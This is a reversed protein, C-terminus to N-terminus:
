APLGRIGGIRRQEEVQRGRRAAQLSAGDPGLIRVIGAKLDISM